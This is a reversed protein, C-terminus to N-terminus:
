NVGSNKNYLPNPLPNKAEIGILWEELETRLERVLEPHASAINTSEGIDRELDFLEISDNEWHMILKHHGRRVISYPRVKDGWWYHPYHWFLDREPLSKGNAVYPYLDTGDVELEAPLHVGTLSCITPLFDISIIPHNSASRLNMIGPGSIFCPVRLGGESPHGKGLRLPSNDTAIIHGGNDSFFVVITNEFIGQEKLTEVIRGISEDISRIMAAYVPHRQGELPQKDRILQNFSEDDLPETGLGTMQQRATEIYDDKAQLPTHVAYHCLYLFFPRSSNHEIFDV